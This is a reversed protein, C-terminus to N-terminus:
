ARELQEALAALVRAVLAPQRGLKLSVDARMAHGIAGSPERVPVLRPACIVIASSLKASAATFGSREVTDHFRVVVVDLPTGPETLETVHAEEADVSVSHRSSTEVGRKVSVYGLRLPAGLGLDPATALARAVRVLHAAAEAHALDGLSAIRADIRTLDVDRGVEVTRVLPTREHAKQRAALDREKQETMARQALERRVKAAERLTAVRLPDDIEEIRVAVAGRAIKGERAVEIIRGAAPSVLDMTVKDSDVEGLMAEEEVFDGVSVKPRLEAESMSEGLDVTVDHIKVNLPPKRPITM